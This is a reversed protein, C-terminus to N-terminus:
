PLTHTIGVNAGVEQLIVDNSLSINQSIQQCKCQIVHEVEHLSNQHRFILVRDLVAFHAHCTRFSVDAFHAETCKSRSSHLLFALSTSHPVWVEM